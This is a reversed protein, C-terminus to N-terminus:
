KTNPVVKTRETLIAVTGDGPQLNQHNPWGEANAYTTAKFSRKEPSSIVTAKYSHLLISPPLPLPSAPVSSGNIIAIFWTTGKRKAIGAIGGIKSGQLVVTEDWTTPLEKFVDLAPAADPNRLIFEPDEAIVLWPSGLLIATALQHTWTTSGPWRLNVPTYDAPGVAFRTFPLAANHSATIPGEKMRNLEIGRVAERSMGNPFTREEGTPKQVGHLDVMLKREAGLQLVRREFDIKSKSEGNIFDIKVGALGSEAACDLFARADAYDGNSDEIENSDKWAFVGIGKSRAYGALDKMSAWPTAWDKWGDDVLTYEYGLAAAFDVFEAEQKPTGTERSMYRWVFRGPQIYRTDRFLSPDAPPNLNENLTNNVLCNLDPCLLTVRWPTILTGTVVFGASGETFDVHLTRNGLARFRMGSYNALAAETLLEYGRGQPLEIVLPATQLPGQSSVTPLSDVPARRFEGAYSKLKWDNNREGFWVEGEPLVWTSTEELVKLPTAASPLLVRWAFGNDYARAEVTYQTGDIERIPIALTNAKNIAIDKAGRFSYQEDISGRLAVGFNPHLGIERTSVGSGNTVRLGIHAPGGVVKGGWLVRYTLGASPDQYIEAEVSGDPSKIVIRDTDGVAAKSHRLVAARTRIGNGSQALAHMPCYVSAGVALAGYFLLKYLNTM